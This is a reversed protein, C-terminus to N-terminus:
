PAAGRATARYAPDAPGGPDDTRAAYELAVLRDLARVAVDLPVGARAALAATTAVRLRILADLM